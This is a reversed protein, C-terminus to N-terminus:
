FPGRGGSLKANAYLHEYCILFLELELSRPRGGGHFRIWGNCVDVVKVERRPNDQPWPTGTDRSIWTEGKKPCFSRASSLIDITVRANAAASDALEMACDALSIARCSRVILIIAAIAAITAAIAAITAAIFAPHFM